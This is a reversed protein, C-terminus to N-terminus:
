NLPLIVNDPINQQYSQQNAPIYSDSDLEALDKFLFKYSFFSCFSGIIIGALIDDWHHWYDIYRSVSVYLSTLVPLVILSYKFLAANPTSAPIKHYLYYSTFVGGAFIVSSHGSPFSKFGESIISLNKQSCITRDFYTSNTFSVETKPICRSIFDPRPRGAIKKIFSTIVLNYLHTGRNLM